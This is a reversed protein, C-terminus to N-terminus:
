DQKRFNRQAFARFNNGDVVYYTRSVYGGYSLLSQEFIAGNEFRHAYISKSIFRRDLGWKEHFGKIRAIQIEMIDKSDRKKSIKDVFMEETVQFGGKKLLYETVEQQLGNESYTTDIEEQGRELITSGVIKVGPTLSRERKRKTFIASERVAKARKRAQERKRELGEALEEEKRGSLDCIRRHTDSLFVESSLEQQVDVTPCLILCVYFGNHIM